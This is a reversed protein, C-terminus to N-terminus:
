PRVYGRTRYHIAPLSVDDMSIHIFCARGMRRVIRAASFYNETRASATENEYAAKNGPAQDRKNGNERTSRPNSRVRHRDEADNTRRNDSM